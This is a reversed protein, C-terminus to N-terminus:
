ALVGLPLWARRACPHAPPSRASACSRRLQRRTPRWSGRLGCCAKGSACHLSCTPCPQLLVLAAGAEWSRGAQLQWVGAHGPVQQLQLMAPLLQAARPMGPPDSGTIGPQACGGAQYDRLPQLALSLHKEADASVVEAEGCGQWLPTCHLTPLPPPPPHPPAHQARLGSAALPKCWPLCEPPGARNRCPMRRAQGPEQGGKGCGWHSHQAAAPTHGGATVPEGVGRGAGPLRKGRGAAQGGV